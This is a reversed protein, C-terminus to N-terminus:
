SLVFFCFALQREIVYCIIIYFVLISSSSSMMVVIYSSDVQCYNINYKIVSCFRFQIICLNTCILQCHYRDNFIYIYIIGIQPFSVYILIKLLTIDFHTTFSLPLPSFLLLPTNPSPTTNYILNRLLPHKSDLPTAGDM